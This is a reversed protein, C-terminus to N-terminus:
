KSEIVPGFVIGLIDNDTEIFNFEHLDNASVTKLFGVLEDYSDITENFNKAIQFAVTLHNEGISWTNQLAGSMLIANNIYKRSEHSM